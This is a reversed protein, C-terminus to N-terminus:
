KKGSLRTKHIHNSLKPNVIFDHEILFKRGILVPFRMNGRYTVSLEINYIHEHFSIKTSIIFREEAKGNSSKVSKKRYNEFYHIEGTYKPDADDLFVVRLKKDASESIACCHISSTYAGTDIKVRLRKLDLEPFDAKDTRGIIQRDKSIKM